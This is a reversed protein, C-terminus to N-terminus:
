RLKVGAFRVVASMGQHYLGENLEIDVEELEIVKYNPFDRAIEEKSYLMSENKPGGAKPNTASYVLHRKAFGEILVLGGVKVYSELVRHYGSKLKGDFHAYILALADFSHPQYKVTDPTGLAYKLQVDHKRALELAKRQGEISSDFADVKWGHKAAFVANRGEGEAPLLICGPDISELVQSFYRNPAEGYAYADQRYRENWFDQM